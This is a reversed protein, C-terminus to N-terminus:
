MKYEAQKAAWDGVILAPVDRGAYAESGIYIGYVWIIFAIIWTLWFFSFILVLVGMIISQLAHFRRRKDSAPSVLYLIIGFIGVFVYNLIYIFEDNSKSAAAKKTPM